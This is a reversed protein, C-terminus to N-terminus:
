VINNSRLNLPFIGVHRNNGGAFSTQPLTINKCRDTMRNMPPPPIMDSRTEPGMNKRPTETRNRHRKLLLPNRNLRDKNAPPDKDPSPDRDPSVVSVISLRTTCMRTSHKKTISDRRYRYLETGKKLLAIFIICHM